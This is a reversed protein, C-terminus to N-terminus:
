GRDMNGAVAPPAYGRTEAHSRAHGWAEEESDALPIHEVGVALESAAVAAVCWKRKVEESLAVGNLDVEYVDGVQYVALGRAVLADRQNM